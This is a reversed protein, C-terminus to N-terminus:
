RRSVITGTVYLDAPLNLFKELTVTPTTTSTSNGGTQVPVSAKGRNFAEGINKTLAAQGSDNSASLDTNPTIGLVTCLGTYLNWNRDRDLRTQTLEDAMTGGPPTNKATEWHPYEFHPYDKFSTWDAGLFFGLKRAIDYVPRYLGADYSLAGAKQFALDVGLGWNHASEGAKANTVIKGPKTRGQAYLDTQEQMTRLGDTIFLRWGGTTAAQGQALLDKVMQQFRPDLDSINRNSM